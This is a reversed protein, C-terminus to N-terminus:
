RHIYSQLTVPPITTVLIMYMCFWVCQTTNRFLGCSWRICSKGSREKHLWKLAAKDAKADKRVALAEKKLPDYTNMKKDKKSGIPAARNGFSIRTLSHCVFRIAQKTKLQGM